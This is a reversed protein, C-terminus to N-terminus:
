SRNSHLRSVVMHFWALEIQHKALFGEIAEKRLPLQEMYDTLSRFQESVHDITEKLKLHNAEFCALKTSTSGINLVFIKYSTAM